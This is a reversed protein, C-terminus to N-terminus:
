ERIKKLVQKAIVIATPIIPIALLVRSILVDRFLFLLAAYLTTSVFTLVTGKTNILNSGSLKKFTLVNLIALLIYSLLVFVSTFRYDVLPLLIISLASSVIATIVSPLASRGSKEYFMQASMVANSLFIPIVALELPYIAPLSSHFAEPTLLRIIEPSVTLIVLCATCLGKTAILLFAKIEDVNGERLKRLIWPSLASLLGNTVMTLAMGVSLAVSYKGLADTGQTRGITIEGIRLILTMSLYHPLLPISFKLLFRWIEKNYLKQSEHLLLYAIPLAIIVLSLSSGLIRAESSINTFSIILLSVIPPLLASMINIFSASKYRYEYRARATYFGITTGAFIQALMLVSIYTNLGTLNNIYRSFTFYLACFSTFVTTFLGFASSIAEDENGPNKQLVRYVVGGSLELTIIVSIVGLWTNYLPYVGYEEPTLLRTFIPTTLVSIGRAAATSAIYWISAKAPVRLNSSKKINEM